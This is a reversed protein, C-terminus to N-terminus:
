QNGSNRGNDVALFSTRRKVDAPKADRVELGTVCLRRQEQLFSKEAVNTSLFIASDYSQVADAMRGARQLMNAKAAHFPQYDDLQNSLEDLMKLGQELSVSRAMSIAYNLRVVPTDLHELLAQYLGTIQNWDTNGTQKSDSHVASIAAQVQYPGPRRKALAALLLEKGEKAQLDNWQCRDQEDLPIYANTDSERAPRRSFHLLMLALLGANEPHNTQEHLLRALRIAELCLEDRISRDGSHAAYGENFTLYIVSRVSELREPLQEADPVRYPIGAQHIKRKARVLRQAMTATPTLFAHAIEETSLGCLTRLTLAVQHESRLAPHCCTFILRLREDPIASESDM